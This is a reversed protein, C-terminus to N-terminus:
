TRDLRKWVGGATAVTRDGATVLGRVFVVSRTARIVEGRVVLFDGERGAAVYQVDLQVTVCPERELTEWVLMGLAHDALSAILGGHVVGGANLHRREVQVGCAWGDGERRSLFPGILASYGDPRGFHRQEWVGPIADM